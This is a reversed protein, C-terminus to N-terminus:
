GGRPGGIVSITLDNRRRKMLALFAIEACILAFFWPTARQNKLDDTLEFM